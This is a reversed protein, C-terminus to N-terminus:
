RVVIKHAHELRDTWDGAWRLHPATRVVAYWAVVLLADQHSTHDHQALVDFLLGTVLEKVLYDKMYQTCLWALRPGKSLRDSTKKMETTKDLGALEISYCDCSLYAAAKPNKAVANSLKSHRVGASFIVNSFRGIMFILATSFLRGGHNPSLLIKEFRFNQTQRSENAFSIQILGHM